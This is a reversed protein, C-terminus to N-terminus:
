EWEFKETRSLLEKVREKVREDKNAKWRELQVENQKIRETLRDLEKRLQDYEL